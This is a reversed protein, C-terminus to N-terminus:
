FFFIPKISSPESKSSHKKESQERDVSCASLILFVFGLLAVKKM